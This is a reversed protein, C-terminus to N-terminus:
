LRFPNRSDPPTRVRYYAGPSMRGADDDSAFPVPMWARAARSSGAHRAREASRQDCARLRQVLAYPQSGDARRRAQGSLLVRMAHAGDEWAAELASLAHELRSLGLLEHGMAQAARTLRLGDYSWVKGIDHLLAAAIGLDRETRTLTSQTAIDAAVELSHAALGGAHAHHHAISAPLMWFADHVDRRAFVGDVFARLPATAISDVLDRIGPVTGAVPCLAPPLHRLVGPSRAPRVGTVVPQSLGPPHLLDFTEAGLPSLLRGLWAVDDDFAIAQICRGGVGLKVRTWDVGDTSGVRAELLVGTVAELRHPHEHMPM